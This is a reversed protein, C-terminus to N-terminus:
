LELNGELVLVAKGGIEVREVEEGDLRIRVSVRGARGMGDGQEGVCRVVGDEAQLIGQRWLYVGMPGHASGTVPDEPVGESPAFFRIHMASDPDVTDLTMPAFGWVSGDNGHEVRVPLTGSRTQVQLQHDGPDGLGHLGGRALAHFCAITAHGCLDVETTPTFWRIQLDAEPDTAQQVFVTESLNMERAVAQMQEATLGDAQSVVAAPNGAFSRDTFADLQQVAVRM